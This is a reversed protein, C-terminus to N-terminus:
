LDTAESVEEWGLAERLCQRAPPPTGNGVPPVPRLLEDVRRRHPEAVPGPGNLTLDTRRHIRMERLVASKAKLAEPSMAPLFSNFYEGRAGKAKRARFTFGLFTFSTDHAGRRKGDKCYVIRTKDPHLKLGVEEMRTAIGALVQEAQRWSVCHVVADDAYREFLCGPYNRAMWQDFAYHMFLNALIPSVASGQPTGKNREVLTGDRASVEYSCVVMQASAVEVGITGGANV